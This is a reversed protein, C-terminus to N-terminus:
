GARRNKRLQLQQIIIGIGLAAPVGVFLGGLVLVYLVVSASQRAGPLLLIATLAAFGVFFAGLSLKGPEYRTWGMVVKM